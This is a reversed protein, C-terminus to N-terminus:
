LEWLKLGVGSESYINDDEELYGSIAEDSTARDNTETLSSYIERALLRFYSTLQNELWVKDDYSLKEDFDEVFVYTSYEHYYQITSRRIEIDLNPYEKLTNKAMQDLWKKTQEAELLKSMDINTCTFSAGDGQSYFGSYRIQPEIFGMKELRETEQCYTDELWQDVLLDRNDEIVNAKAEENLEKFSYAKIVIERM